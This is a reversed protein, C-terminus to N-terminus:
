HRHARSSRFWQVLQWASVLAVGLLLGVFWRMAPAMGQPLEAPLSVIEPFFRPSLFAYAFAVVPAGFWWGPIGGRGARATQHYLPLKTM